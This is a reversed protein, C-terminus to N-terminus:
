KKRLQFIKQTDMDILFKISKRNILNESRDSWEQLSWLGLKKQLIRVSRSTYLEGLMDDQRRVDLQYSMTSSKAACQETVEM